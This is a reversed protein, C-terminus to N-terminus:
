AQKHADSGKYKGCQSSGQRGIGSFGKCFTSFDLDAAKATKIVQIDVAQSNHLGQFSCTSGARHCDNLGGMAKLYCSYLIQRGIRGIRFRARVSPQNISSSNNINSCCQLFLRGM